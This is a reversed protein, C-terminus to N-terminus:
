SIAKVRITQGITVFDNSPMSCPEVNAVELCIFQDEGNQHVDAMKEAQLKGPNWFVWHKSNLAEIEILRQWQEDVIQMTQNSHYIRDVPGQGNIFDAKINLGGTLKDDFPVQNLQKITVNEPHSICFYSHLAGTYQAAQESLNHMELLQSFQEGFILTQILKFPQPWLSHLDQGSLSVKITVKDADIVVSDLQWLQQRAFGHNGHQNKADQWHAGFWPWCLPIGGRIAKCQQFFADKSLWFVAQQDKPQWLLVQGGYLSVKAMCNNHEITIAELQKGLATQSVKGFQNSTLVDSM